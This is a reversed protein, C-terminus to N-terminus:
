GVGETITRCDTCFGSPDKMLNRAKPMSTAGGIQGHADCVLAYRNGWADIGQETAEYIVIKRGPVYPNMREAIYGAEESHQKRAM